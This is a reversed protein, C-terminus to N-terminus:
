TTDINFMTNLFSNGFEKIAWYIDRHSVEKEKKKKKEQFCGWHNIGVASVLPGNEDKKYQVKKIWEVSLIIHLVSSFM